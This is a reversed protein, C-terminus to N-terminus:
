NNRMLRRRGVFLLMLFLFMFGYQDLTPISDAMSLPTPDNEGAEVPNNNGNADPETGNDSLDSIGGDATAMVQNTYEGFGSGQDTVTTVNVVM